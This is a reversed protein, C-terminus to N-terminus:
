NNRTVSKPKKTTSTVSSKLSKRMVKKSLVPLWNGKEDIVREVVVDDPYGVLSKVIYEVFQQDITSM